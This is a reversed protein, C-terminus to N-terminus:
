ILPIGLYYKIYVKILVLTGPSVSYWYPKLLTTNTETYDELFSYGNNSKLREIAKGDLPKLVHMKRKEVKSHRYATPWPLWALHCASIWVLSYGKSHWQKGNEHENTGTLSFNIKRLKDLCYVGTDMVARDALTYMQNSISPLRLELKKKFLKALFNLNCMICDERGFAGEVRQELEEDRWLFQMDEQVFYAYKYNSNIAYQIAVNLNAYLGGYKHEADKKAVYVYARDQLRELMQKLEANDSGDDFIAIHMDPYFKDISDLLNQLFAPRNYSFICIVWDSFM